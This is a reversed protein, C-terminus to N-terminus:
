VSRGSLIKLSASLRQEIPAESLKAEVLGAVAQDIETKRYGLRALALVLPDSARARPRAAHGAPTFPVDIKGKLELALRQATKKGVGSIGCLTRVDGAEIARVLDPLTFASLTALALRPGIGSVGILQEFARREHRDTFGFLNIADERVQTSISLSAEDGEVLSELSRSSVYALYGVGGADIIVHDPGIELIEGRLRAIV